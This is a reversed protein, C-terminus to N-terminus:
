PKVNLVKMAIGECYKAQSNVQKTDTTGDPELSWSPLVVETQGEIADKSGRGYYGSPSFHFIDQWILLCTHWLWLCNYGVVHYTPSGQPLEPLFSYRGNLLWWIAAVRSLSSQLFESYLVPDQGWIASNCIVPIIEPLGSEQMNRYM